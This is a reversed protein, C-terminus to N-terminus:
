RPSQLRGETICAVKHDSRIPIEEQVTKMTEKVIEWYGRDDFDNRIADYPNYKCFTEKQTM